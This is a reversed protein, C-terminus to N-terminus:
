APKPGDPQQQAMAQKRAALEQVFSRPQDSSRMRSNLMDAEQMSISNVYPAQAQSIGQSPMRSLQPSMSRSINQEIKINVARDFERQMEDRGNYGGMIAGAIPAIAGILGAIPAVIPFLSQFILGVALVSLVLPATILTSKFLGSFIDKNWFTPDRVIKGKEREEEMEERRNLGAILPLGHSVLIGTGLAPALKTVAQGIIEPNELGGPPITVNTFAAIAVTTALGLVSGFAWWKAASGNWFTPEKDTPIRPLDTRLAM